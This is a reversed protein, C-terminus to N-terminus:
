AASNPLADIASELQSVIAKLVPLGADELARGIVFNILDQSSILAAPEWAAHVGVPIEVLEGERIAKRVTDKHVGLLEATINRSVPTQPHAVIRRIADQYRESWVIGHARWGNVRGTTLELHDTEVCRTNRCTHDPEYGEPIPGNTMVWAIRHALHIKRDIGFHGYGIGHGAGAGTWVLCGSTADRETKAFFRKREVPTLLRIARVPGPSM